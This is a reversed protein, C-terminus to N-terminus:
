AVDPAPAAVPDPEPVKRERGILRVKIRGPEDGVISINVFCSNSDKLSPRVKKNLSGKGKLSIFKTKSQEGRSCQISAVSGNIKMNGSANVRIRFDKPNVLFGSANVGANAETKTRVSTLVKASAFAPLALAAVLALVITSRFLVARSYSVARRTALALAGHLRGTM